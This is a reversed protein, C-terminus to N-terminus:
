PFPQTWIRGSRDAWFVLAKGKTNVIVPNTGTTLSSEGFLNQAHVRGDELLWTATWTGGLSTSWPQTGTGLEQEEQGPVCVFIEKGRRWITDITGDSRVSLSGGDMPCANLPWTGVGLKQGPGFTKGGDTSSILYMDRAGDLWNRFMVHLKGDPAFAISPHCCECVTGSPSRYACVNKTWTAGGDKSTSVWIETGKNRLDLWTCALLGLKSAAMAHLGERAAKPVDSVRSPGKWTAGSDSSRWAFLDGDNGGGEKGYIASVVLSKGALAIRPGRRMGLALNGSTPLTVPAAFKTGVDDSRQVYLGNNAGYAVFVRKGEAVVQPEVGFFGRPTVQTPAFAVLLGILPTM